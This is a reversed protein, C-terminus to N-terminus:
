LRRELYDGFDNNKYWQAQAEAGGAVFERGELGEKAIKHQTAYGLSPDGAVREAWEVLPKAPPWFPDTGREMPLIYSPGAYGWVIDQNQVEPPFGSQLLTGRDQPALEQSQAFGVSAGDKLWKRHAQEFKKSVGKSSHSVSVNLM